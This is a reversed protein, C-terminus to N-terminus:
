YLDIEGSLSAKAKLETDEYKLNEFNIIDFRLSIFAKQSFIFISTNYVKYYEEILCTWPAM